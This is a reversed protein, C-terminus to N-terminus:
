WIPFSLTVSGTFPLVLIHGLDTQSWAWTGLWVVVRGGMIAPQMNM